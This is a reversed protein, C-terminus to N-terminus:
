KISVVKSIKIILETNKGSATITTDDALVTPKAHTHLFLLDNYFIIFLLPGLVSGQHVGIKLPQSHCFTGNVNIKISRNVLYDKILNLSSNDFNYYELKYALLEHDVTDFAKSLDLFVAIVDLGTDLCERWDEVMSNLNYKLENNANLIVLVIIFLNVKFERALHVFFISPHSFAIKM